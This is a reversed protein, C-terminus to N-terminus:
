ETSLDIQNDLLVAGEVVITEGPELGRLVPVHGDHIPGAVVGRRSFGGDAGRVYVFQDAGNSVLAEAPVEVSGAVPTSAFRVRAYVNPRLAGGPNDLRVRVPVTHRQPDVVASVVDVRGSLTLDPLSPSTIEAATGAKIGRAEAEFLDAVVWVRSLDAVVMLATAPDPGVQQDLAVNKEIVVGNRPSAVTFENSAGSTVHLSALKADALRLDLEAQRLQQQSLLEDKAPLARTAVVATVRELSSRAADLDVQAKQRRTLEEALDSSAVAFLPQGAHVQDGLEVFVKTIRGPLPAGVKSDRTEDISVRSSAPVTWGTAPAEARAVKLFRWQPAGPRLRIASKEVTMDPPPTAAPAPGDLRWSLALAGVTAAGALFAIWSRSFSRGPSSPLHRPDPESQITSPSTDM